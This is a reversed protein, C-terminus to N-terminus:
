NLQSCQQTDPEAPVTFLGHTDPLIMRTCIQHVIMFQEISVHQGEYLYSAVVM